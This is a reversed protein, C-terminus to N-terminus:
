SRLVEIKQQIEVDEPDMEAIRRAVQMAESPRGQFHYADVLHRLALTQSTDLRAARLLFLEAESYKGQKILSASLCCLTFYVNQPNLQHHCNPNDNYLLAQRCWHEAEEDQGRAEYIEGLIMYSQPDDRFLETAEQAFRIADDTHGLMKSAHAIALHLVSDNMQRLTDGADTLDDYIRLAEEKARHYDDSNMACSVLLFRARHNSPCLDLAHELSKWSDRIARDAGADDGIQQCERAAEIQELAEKRKQESVNFNPDDFAVGSDM